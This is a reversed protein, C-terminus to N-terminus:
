NFNNRHPVALKNTEMKKRNLNIDGISQLIIIIFPVLLLESAVKFRTETYFLVAPIIGLSWPILYISLYEPYILSVQLKKSVFFKFGITFFLFFLIILRYLQYIFHPIILKWSLREDGIIISNGDNSLFYAGSLNPVKQVGVIYSEIKQMTALVFEKPNERVSSLAMRTYQKSYGPDNENVSFKPDLEMHGETSLFRDLDFKPLSLYNYKHNGFYLTMGSESALSPSGYILGNLILTIPLLLFVILSTRWQNVNRTTKRNKILVFVAIGIFTLWHAPRTQVLLFGSILFIYNKRKISSYIFFLLLFLEFVTDQSSYCLWILSPNIPLAALAILRFKLNKIECCILYYLVISLSYYFFVVIYFNPSLWVFPLLLLASGPPYFNDKPFNFNLIDRAKPEWNGVWVPLDSIYHVFVLPILALVLYIVLHFKSDIKVLDKRV